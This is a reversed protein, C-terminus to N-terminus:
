MSAQWIALKSEMEKRLKIFTDASVNGKYFGDRSQMYDNFAATYEAEEKTMVNPM